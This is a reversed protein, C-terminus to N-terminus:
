GSFFVPKGPWPFFPLVDSGAKTGGFGKFKKSNVIVQTDCFKQALPLCHLSLDSRMRPRCYKSLPDQGSVHDHYPICPM